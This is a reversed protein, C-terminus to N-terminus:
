PKQKLKESVLQKLKEISIGGPYDFYKEIWWKIDNLSLCAVNSNDTVTYVKDQNANFEAQYYEILSELEKIKSDEVVTDNNLISEIAKKIAPYKDQPIESTSVIIRYDASGFSYKMTREIVLVEIKDQNGSLNSSDRLKLERFDKITMKSRDFEALMENDWFLISKEWQKDTTM